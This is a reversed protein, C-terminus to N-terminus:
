FSFFIVVEFFMLLALSGLILIIGVVLSWTKSLHWVWRQILSRFGAILSLAAVEPFGLLAVIGPNITAHSAAFLFGSGVLLFSNVVVSRV